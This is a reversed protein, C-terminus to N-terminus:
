IASRTTFRYLGAPRHEVDSEREGIAELHGSALMRRRFSDKNVARGLIMEHVTQLQRLTFTEALLQFGIPTYDLKGRIRKVATGLIGAHDFALRMARGGLARAQVAGGTEGEWPVEIRALNLDADARPTLRASDVLAYYAVSIVRTRPDRGPNGFTYLQELFVDPLGAKQDLVRKAARDLSENMQVFGGPLAWQGKFPHERREVLAAQLGEDGVSLIAVDVAVSPREFAAADYRALYDREENQITTERATM